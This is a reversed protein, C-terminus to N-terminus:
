WKFIFSNYWSNYINGKLLRIVDESIKRTGFIIGKAPLFKKILNISNKENINKVKFIKEKILEYKIEKSFFEKKEFKNQLHDISTKINFSPKISETEFIYSSIHFNNKELKNIFYRHHPTDTSLIIIKEKM